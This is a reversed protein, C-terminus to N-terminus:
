KFKKMYFKPKINGHCQYRCFTKLTEDFNDNKSIKTVENNWEVDNNIDYDDSLLYIPTGFRMFQTKAEHESLEKYRDSRNQSENIYECIHKM